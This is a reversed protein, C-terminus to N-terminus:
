QPYIEVADSWPSLGGKSTKIRVRFKTAIGPLMGEAVTHAVTTNEMNEWTVGNDITFQWSYSATVYKGISNKAAKARLLIEGTSDGQKAAIVQKDQTIPTTVVMLAGTVIEVANTQNNAAINNVYALAGDLLVKVAQKAAIKAGEAGRVGNKVDDMSLQFADIATDLAAMGSYAPTYFGGVNALLANYIARSSSLFNGDRTRLTFGLKGKITRAYAAFLIIDIADMTLFSKSMRAIRKREIRTLLGGITIINKKM